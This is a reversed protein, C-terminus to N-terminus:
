IFQTPSSTTMVNVQHPTLHFDKIGPMSMEEMIVSGSAPNTFKPSFKQQPVSDEYYRSSSSKNVTYYIIEPAFNPNKTKVKAIEVM